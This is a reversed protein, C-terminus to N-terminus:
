HRFPQRGATKIEMIGNQKQSSQNRFAKSFDHHLDGDIQLRPFHKFTPIIHRSSKHQYLDKLM